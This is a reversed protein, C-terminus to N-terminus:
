LSISQWKVVRKGPNNFYEAVFLCSDVGIFKEVIERERRVM